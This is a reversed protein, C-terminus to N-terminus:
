AKSNDHARVVALLIFRYVQLITGDTTYVAATQTATNGKADTIDVSAGEQLLRTVCDLHNGTIALHLANMGAEDECHDIDSFSVIVDIVAFHGQWAALTLATDGSYDSRGSCCVFHITITPSSCCTQLYYLVM